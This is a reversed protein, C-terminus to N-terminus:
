GGARVREQAREAAPGTQTGAAEKQQARNRVQAGDNDCAAPCDGDHLRDRDRDRDRDREQDGVGTVDLRLRDRDQLRITDRDADSTLTLQSSTDRVQLQDRDRDMLGTGIAGSSEAAAPGALIALVLTAGGAIGLTALKRKM